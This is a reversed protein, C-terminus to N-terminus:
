NRHSAARSMLEIKRGAVTTGNQQIYLNAAAAIQKGTSTFPGTMPLILGIKINEQAQATTVTFTVLATAALVKLFHRRM